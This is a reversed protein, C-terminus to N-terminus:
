TAVDQIVPKCIPEIADIVQDLRPSIKDSEPMGWGMTAEWKRRDEPLSGQERQRHTIILMQVSVNIENRIRFLEEYPQLGAMGFLAVFRHRKAALAGFFEQKANLRETTRFYSNLARTDSESEGPEIRRTSGEDGFGAPSRADEIIDRAEYFAALIQEALETNRTWAALARDLAVKKEALAIDANVKRETLERDTDLRQGHMMLSTSRSVFFGAITVFASVAAAVVAPAIFASADM